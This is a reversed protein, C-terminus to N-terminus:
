LKDQKRRECTEGGVGVLWRAVRNSHLARDRQHCLGRSYLRQLDPWADDCLYVGKEGCAPRGVTVHEHIMTKIDAYAKITLFIM